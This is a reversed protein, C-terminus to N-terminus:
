GIKVNESKSFAPAYYGNGRFHAVVKVTESKKHGKPLRFRTSASYTCGAVLAASTSGIKRKGVYYTITTDGFCALDSPVWSPGKVSGKTTLVFPARKAHRPTTSATVRPKPAPSPLTFFTADAGPMPHTGHLAVLRYHFTVGPQLGTITAAVVSTTNSAPLVAANTSAGYATTLGYQFEYTTAEGNPDVTGTLTASSQHIGTASGTTAGPPAHGATKFTRGTGQSAGFKNSALLKYHYITGPTLKGIGASVATSKGGSGASQSKTFSGLQTTLGYEFRYVTKTGQPNVSGGLTASTDGIKSASGTSVTPSSGAAAVSAFGVVIGLTVLLTKITRKM